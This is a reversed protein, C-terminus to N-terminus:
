SSPRWDHIKLQVRTQDRYENIEPTFALDFTGVPWKQNGGDWWIADWELRDKTVQLKLHRGDNGIRRPARALTVKSLYLKVNPNSQGTPLLRALEALRELNLDNSQAECDLLLPPQLQEPKM